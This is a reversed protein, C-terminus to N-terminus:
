VAGCKWCGVVKQARGDDTVLVLYGGAVEAGCICRELGLMPHRQLITV